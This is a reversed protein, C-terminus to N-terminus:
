ILAMDKMQAEKIALDDAVNQVSLFSLIWAMAQAARKSDQGILVSKMHSESNKGYHQLHGQVANYLNWATDRPTRGQDASNYRNLLDTIRNAHMTKGRNGVDDKLPFFGRIIEQAMSESVTSNLLERYLEISTLFDRQAISISKMLVELKEGSSMSHKISILANRSKADLISKNVQNKCFYRFPTQFVSMSQGGDHGNIISIYNGIRDNGGVEHSGLDIQTIIERGGDIKYLHRINVKAADSLQSLVRMCDLNQIPRWKKSLGQAFVKGTDTRYSTYFGTPEANIPNPTPVTAVTFDAEHQKLLANLAEDSLNTETLTPTETEM